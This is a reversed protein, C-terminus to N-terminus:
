DAMANINSDSSGSGSGSCSSCGCGAHRHIGALVLMSRGNGRRGSGGVIQRLRLRTKRGNPIKAKAGDMQRMRRPPACVLRDSSASLLPSQLVPFAAPKVAAAASAVAAICGCCCCCFWTRAFEGPHWEAVGTASLNTTM